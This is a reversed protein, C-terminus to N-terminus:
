ALSTDKARSQLVGVAVCGLTLLGTTLSLAIPLGASDAIAGVIVPVLSFGLYGIVLFGSIARPKSQLALRGVEALGGRYIYGYASMGSIAAGLLTLSLWGQHAGIFLVAAGIPLLALGIQLAVAPRVKAAHGMVALGSANVLFLALGSWNEQGHVALQTPVIAIVIGSVTLGLAFALAPLISGPPFTPLSVLPADATRLTSGAGLWLAVAIIICAIFVFGYSLDAGLNPVFALASSTLLAGIGFGVATAAATVTAARGPGVGDGWLEAIWAAAAALAVAVGIGQFIRAISLSILNPWAWVMGTALAACLLGVVVTTRRGVRDSLGGLGILTPILGLVYIAFVGSMVATGVQAQAAYEPYLPVQLNVAATILVLAAAIALTILTQRM